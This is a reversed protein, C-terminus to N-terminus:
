ISFLNISECWQFIPAGYTEQSNETFNEHFSMTYIIVSGFVAILLGKWAAFPNRLAFALDGLIPLLLAVLFWTGDFAIARIKLSLWGVFILALASDLIVKLHLFDEDPYGLFKVGAVAVVALFIEYWFFGFFRVVPKEEEDGLIMTRKTDQPLVSSRQLIRTDCIKRWHPFSETWVLDNQGLASTEILRLLEMESVPGFIKEDTAYHWTKSVNAIPLTRATSFVPRTHLSTARPSDQSTVAQVPPPTASEKSGFLGKIRDLLSKGKLAKQRNKSREIIKTDGVRRWEGQGPNWVPDLLTLEGTALLYLIEDETVPGMVATGGKSYHWMVATDVVSGTAADSIPTIYRQNTELSLREMDPGHDPMMMQRRTESEIRHAQTIASQASMPTPMKRQAKRQKADLGETDDLSLAARRSGSFHAFPLAQPVGEAVTRGRSRSAAEPDEQALKDLVGLSEEASSPRDSPDLCLHGEVWGCLWEPLDPRLEELSAHSGSTIAEEIEKSSGAQFPNRGTLSYYFICGLSFLDGEISLKGTKLKDPDAYMEGNQRREKLRHSHVVKVSRLPSPEILRIDLGGSMESQVLVSRASLDGHVIGEQHIEHLASLLGRALARFDQYTMTQQRCLRHLAAGSEFKSLTFMGDGDKEVRIIQSLNKHSVTAYHRMFALHRECHFEGGDELDSPHFTKLVCESGSVSDFVLRPGVDGLLTLPRLTQFQNQAVSM